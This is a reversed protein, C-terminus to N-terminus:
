RTDGTDVSPVDIDITEQPQKNAEIPAKNPPSRAVDYLDAVISPSNLERTGQPRSAALIHEYVYIYARRADRVGSDTSANHIALRRQRACALIERNSRDRYEKPVGFLEAFPGLHAGYLDVLACSDNTAIAEAVAREGVAGINNYSLSRV